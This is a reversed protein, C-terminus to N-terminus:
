SAAPIPPEPLAVPKSARRTLRYLVFAAVYALLAAPQIRQLLDNKVVAGVIPILGVVVGVCWALMASGVFGRRPAPLVEPPRLAEVTLVGAMPALFAGLIGFLTEAPIELITWILPLSLASAVLTWRWRKLRPRFVLFRRGFSESTYVAPALAGLGFLMLMAGGAIGGIDRTLLAGFLLDKPVPYTRVLSLPDLQVPKVESRGISGTVALLALTAVIMAALMVGVFGGLRVDKATKGAAGWEVSVLSPLAFFGFVLQVMSLMARTSGSPKVVTALTEVGPRLATMEWGAIGGLLLAPFIPFVVMLAGIWRSFKLSILSSLIAWVGSTFLFLPSGITQGGVTVSRLAEADVLRCNVLGKLTWDVGYAIALAFTTVLSLGVVLGGLWKAGAEGFSTAILDPMTGKTRFGLWAPGLYLLLFALMGGAAAGVVAPLLGGVALTTPALRDFYAVWLFLGIYHPAIGWEWSKPEIPKAPSPATQTSM